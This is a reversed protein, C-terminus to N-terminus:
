LGDGKDEVTKEKHLDPMDRYHEVIKIVESWKDNESADVWQRVYEQKPNGEENYYGLNKKIKKIDSDELEAEDAKQQVPAKPKLQEKKGVSSDISVETEEQEAINEIVDANKDPDSQSRDAYLKAVERRELASAQQENIQRKFDMSKVIIPEMHPFTVRFSVEERHEGKSEIIRWEVKSAHKMQECAWHYKSPDPFAQKDKNKLIDVVMEFYQKPNDKRMEAGSKEMRKFMADNTSTEGQEFEKGQTSKLYDMYNFANLNSEAKINPDPNRTATCYNLFEMFSSSADEIDIM